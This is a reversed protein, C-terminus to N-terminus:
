TERETSLPFTARVRTGQGPASEILLAGGALEAREHMNTLGHSESAASAHRATTADFGNGDDRVSLQIRNDNTNLEVTVNTAAAHRVVNTLAEQMIRFCAAEVQPGIGPCITGIDLRIVLGARRAERTAYWSVAEGLGLDDLIAPRLDSALDRVQQIAQDVLSLNEAETGPRQLNLKLASLLAGFDDHLERAIARREAEQADLLRRSLARLRERKEELESTARRQEISTALVNAISWVFNIEDSTFMRRTRTNASLVGYPREKGSIPVEIGSVVDHAMLLQCPAFRTENALDEITTPTQSRMYFWAAFGPLTSITIRRIADANWPGVGARFEMVNKEPCFELVGAFEVGLTRTVLRSAEELLPRTEVGKLASLSLQALAAQQQERRDLEDEARKRETLDTNTGYVRIPRGADDHVFSVRGLIEHVSGDPWVVRYQLDGPRGDTLLSRRRQLARERDEPHVAAFFDEVCTGMSRDGGFFLRLNGETNYLQGTALDHEWGGTQGLTEALRLMRESKRLAEDARKRETIDLALGVLGVVNGTADRMPVLELQAASHGDDVELRSPEGALAQKCGAVVRERDPSTAFLEPVTQGVASPSGAFGAGSDWFVRLDRDAATARAPLQASFLRLFEQRRELATVDLTVVRARVPRRDGGREAEVRALEAIWAWEGDSRRVRYKCSWGPAGSSLARRIAEDVQAVDDPHIRKRWGGDDTVLSRDKIEELTVHDLVADNRDLQM